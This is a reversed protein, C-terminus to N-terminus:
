LLATPDAGGKEKERRKREKKAAREEKQREEERLARRAEKRARRQENTEGQGEEEKDAAGPAATAERQARAEGEKKDEARLLKGPQDRRARMGLRAGGTKEFLMQYYGQVDDVQPAGPFAAASLEATSCSRDGGPRPRKTGRASARGEEEESASSGEGSSHADAQLKVAAKGGIRASSFPDQTRGLFWTQQEASKEREAAKFGVALKDDKKEVKVHEVIGDEKKGLGKGSSWGMKALLRAGYRDKDM